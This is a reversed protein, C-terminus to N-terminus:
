LTEDLSKQFDIRVIPVSPVKRHFLKFIRRVGCVEGGVSRYFFIRGTNPLDFFLTLCIMVRRNGKM